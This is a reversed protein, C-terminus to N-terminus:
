LKRVHMIKSSVHMIENSVQMNGVHM